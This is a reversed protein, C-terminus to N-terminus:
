AKKVEKFIQSWLLGINLLILAIGVVLSLDNVLSLGAFIGIVPAFYSILSHRWKLAIITLVIWVFILLWTGEYALSM